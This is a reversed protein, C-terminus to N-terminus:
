TIAARKVADPTGYASVKRRRVLPARDILDSFSAPGPFPASAKVYAKLSFLLISRSFAHLVFSSTKLHFHCLSTLVAIKVKPVISPAHPIPISLHCRVIPIRSLRSRFVIVRIVADARKPPLTLNAVRLANVTCDNEADFFLSRYLM